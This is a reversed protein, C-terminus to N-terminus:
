WRFSSMRRPQHRLAQRRAGEMLIDRQVVGGGDPPKQRMPMGIESEEDFGFQPRVQNHFGAALVHRHREDIRPQRLFRERNAAGAPGQPAGATRTRRNGPAPRRWRRAASRAQRWTPGSRLCASLPHAARAPLRLPRPPAECDEGDAAPRKKQGGAGMRTFVRGQQVHRSVQALRAGVGQRHDHRAMRVAALVHFPQGPARSRRRQPARGPRQRGGGFRDRHRRYQQAFEPETRCDRPSTETEEDAAAQHRMASLIRQFGARSPFRRDM